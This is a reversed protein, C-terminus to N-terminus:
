MRKLPKIGLITLGNHLVREVGKVIFLKTTRKGKDPEQLVREYNYLKNFLDAVGRLYSVLDEPRLEDCAKKAVEPFKALEILLKRIDGKIYDLDAEDVNPKETAKELINYARAYTYQLYPGSNQDLDVVASVNFSLQKNASVSAIAYRIAANVIDAIADKNGGKQEIVKEVEKEVLSYVEDFSVYRGLRGSMRVGQLTVMAYSYHILNEAERSHGLLHLAARLQMQPVSQQEAIVNIVRDYGLSFKFLSYAVDRTTYLTTGDSRMLILPPLEIGRPIKLRDREEPGLSNVNLAVADKYKIRFESALAESIVKSVMGSWLLDSEYDFADFSIGLKQLSEKFGQLAYNVLTRVTKVIEEDSKTEYKRIIEAIEEEPNPDANIADALRYFSEKDKEALKAAASVLEDLRRTLEQREEDNATNLKERIERIEFIVNTMSYINGIWTDIKVDQPPNPKGLKLYGYVLIAVQRGADNVYFRTNVEHGRCKLMRAIIDGLVANRLHGIHLPHIPNASTHEVIVKTRREAKEVEFSSDLNFFLEKFIEKENLLANYYIREKKIVSIYKRGKLENPLPNVDKIGLSPLAISLDGFEDRHSFSVNQIVIEKSVGTVQSVIEAFEEVAKRAVNVHSM